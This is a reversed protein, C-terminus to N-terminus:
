CEEDFNWGPVCVFCPLDHLVTIEPRPFDGERCLEFSGKRTPGHLVLAITAADDPTEAQIGEIVFLCFPNECYATYRHSM